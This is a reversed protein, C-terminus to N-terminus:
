PSLVKNSDIESEDLSSLVDYAASLMVVYPFNNCLGLLSHTVSIHSMNMLFINM